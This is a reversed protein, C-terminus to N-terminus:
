SLSAELLVVPPRLIPPPPHPLYSRGVKFGFLTGLPSKEELAKGSTPEPVWRSEGFSYPSISSFDVFIHYWTPFM